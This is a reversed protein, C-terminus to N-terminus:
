LLNEIKSILYELEKGTLKKAIQAARNHTVEAQYFTDFKFGSVLNVFCLRNFALDSPTM